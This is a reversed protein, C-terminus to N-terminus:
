YSVSTVVGNRVIVYYDYGGKFAIEYESTNDRTWLRKFVTVYAGEIYHEDLLDSYNEIHKLKMGRQIIGKSLKNFNARGGVLNIEQATPPRGADSPFVTLNESIAEFEPPVQLKKINDCNEFAIREIKINPNKITVSTLGKCGYFAAEGISTVSNPFTVSSLGSCNCFANVGISTVSNGLTVSTLGTCGWFAGAGISKVSNPITLSTLGTLGLCLDAPICEVDNGFTFTNISKLEKFPRSYDGFDACSKANWTVSKLGTCGYFVESGMLTVANPITVSTLGICGSFAGNGIKAVSNGLTVSTLGTCGKFADFEIETVSNSITVSTLGTCDKFAYFRISTVTCTVGEFSVTEPIVLDGKLDEKSKEPGTVTISKGDNNVSYCIGDQVFKRGPDLVEINEQSLYGKDFSVDTTNDEFFNFKLNNAYLQVLCGSNDTLYQANAFM